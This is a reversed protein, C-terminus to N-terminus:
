TKGFCVTLVISEIGKFIYSKVLISHIPLYLISIYNVIKMSYLTHREYQISFLLMYIHVKSDPSDPNWRDPNFSEPDEIGMRNLVYQPMNLDSGKPIFM